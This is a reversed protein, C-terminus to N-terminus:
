TRGSGGCKQCPISGRGRCRACASWSKTREKGEDSGTRGTGSCGMCEVEGRGGCRPCTSASM